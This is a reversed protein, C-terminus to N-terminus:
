ECPAVQTVASPEALRLYDAGSLVISRELHAANFGILPEAGIQMDVLLMHLRPFLPRAFPPIMGPSLGGAVEAIEESTAFRFKGILARVRENALRASGPLVVMFFDVPEAAKIILAKAGVSGPAGAAARAAASEQSTRCPPHQLLRYPVKSESIFELLRQHTAISM